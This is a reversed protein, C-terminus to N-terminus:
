FAHATGFLFIFSIFPLHMGERPEYLINNLSFSSNWICLPLTNPSALRCIEEDKSESQNLFLSPLSWLLHHSPCARETHATSPGLLCWHSLAPVWMHGALLKHGWRSASPSPHPAEADCSPQVCSHGRPLSKPVALISLLPSAYLELYVTKSYPTKCLLISEHTILAAFGTHDEPKLRATLNGWILEWKFRSNGKPSFFFLFIVWCFRVVFCLFCCFRPQDENLFKCPLLIWRLRQNCVNILSVKSIHTENSTQIQRVKTEVWKFKSCSWRVAQLVPKWSQAEPEATAAISAPLLQILTPKRGHDQPHQTNTPASSISNHPPQHPVACFCKQHNPNATPESCYIKYPFNGKRILGVQWASDALSSSTKGIGHATKFSFLPFHTM